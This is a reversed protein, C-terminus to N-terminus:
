CEPQHCRRIEKLWHQQIWLQGRGPLLYDLVARQMSPHFLCEEVSVELARELTMSAFRALPDKDLYRREIVPQPTKAYVAPSLTQVNSWLANFKTSFDPSGDSKEQREDRYRKVIRECRKEWRKFEQHYGELQDLWYQVFQQEKSLAATKKAM